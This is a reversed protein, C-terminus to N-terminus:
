CDTFCWRKLVRVLQISLHKLFGFDPSEGLGYSVCFQASTFLNFLLLLLLLLIYRRHPVLNNLFLVGGFPVECLVINKEFDVDLYVPLVLLLGVNKNLKCTIFSCTVIEVWQLM